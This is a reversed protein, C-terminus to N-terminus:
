MDVRPISQWTLLITTNVMLANWSHKVLLSISQAPPVFSDVEQHFLNYWSLNGKGAFGTAAPLTEPMATRDTLSQVGM